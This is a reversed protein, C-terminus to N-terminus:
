QMYDCLTLIGIVIDIGIVVGKIKYNIVELDFPRFGNNNQLTVLSHANSLMLMRLLITICGHWSAFHM